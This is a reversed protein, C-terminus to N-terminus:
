SILSNQGEALSRFKAKAYAGVKDQLVISQCSQVPEDM